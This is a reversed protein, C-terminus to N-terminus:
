RPSTPVPFPPTSVSPMSTVVSAITASLGCFASAFRPMDSVSPLPQIIYACSGNSQIIPGSLPFVVQHGIILDDSQDPVLTDLSFLFHGFTVLSAAVSFCFFRFLGLFFDNRCGVKALPFRWDIYALGSLLLRPAIRVRPAPLFATHRSRVRIQPRRTTRDLM